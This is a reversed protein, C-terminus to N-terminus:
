LLYTKEPTTVSGGGLFAGRIYARSCCESNVIDKSIGYIINVNNESISLVGTSKLIEFAGREHSLVMMYVNNKKLQKNRKILVEPSIGFGNKLLLFIRRAIAPNETSIRFGINHHGNISLTGSTKILASLEAAQCCKDEGAIRCIENKAVQSFSM